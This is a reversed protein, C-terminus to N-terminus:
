ANFTHVLDWTRTKWICIKGDDGATLVFGEYSTIINITGSHAELLATEKKRNVDFVKIIEESGGLYLYRGQSCLTKISGTSANFSYLTSNDKFGMLNGEYTGVNILM